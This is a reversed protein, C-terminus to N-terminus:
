CIECCCNGVRAGDDMDVLLTLMGGAELVAVGGGARAGTLLCLVSGTNLLVPDIGKLATGGFGSCSLLIQSM